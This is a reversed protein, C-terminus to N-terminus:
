RNMSPVPSGGLAAGRGRAHGVAYVAAQTRATVGIKPFIASLHNKVTKESIQLRDAIERNTLGDAVLDLVSWERPTLDDDKAPPAAEQEVPTYSIAYVAAQTRATAGIKPFIASLHNKVTKESIQLRRAIQRNTLGDAVLELLITERATLNRYHDVHEGQDSGYAPM